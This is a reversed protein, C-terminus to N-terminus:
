AEQLERDTRVDLPKPPPTLDCQDCRDWGYDPNLQRDDLRWAEPGLVQRLLDCQGILRSDCEGLEVLTRMENRYRETMRDNEPVPLAHLRGVIAGLSQGLRELTQADRVADADPYPKARPRLRLTKAAFTRNRQRLAPMPLALFGDQKLGCSSIM